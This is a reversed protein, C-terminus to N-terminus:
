QSMRLSGGGFYGVGFEDSAAIHRCENVTRRSVAFGYKSALKKRLTEDTKNSEEEEFLERIASVVMDRRNPLFASIPFEKNWPTLLSRSRIARTVTSPHVHLSRALASQPLPVLDTKRESKLFRSQTELVTQLIRWLTNHRGNIMELTGLLKRLRQKDEAQLQRSSQLSKIGEYDIEYRGRALHPLLWALHPKHDAWEIKAICTSHEAAPQPLNTQPAHLSLFYVFARVTRAEEASIGCRFTTEELSLGEEEYLFHREFAEQGMRQICEMETQFQSWDIHWSDPAEQLDARDYPWLFRTSPFRVRRIFPRIKEFLPDREVEAILRAVHPEPMALMQITRLRLALRQKARPLGSVRLGPTSLSHKLTMPMFAKPFSVMAFLRM